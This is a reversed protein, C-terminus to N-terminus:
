GFYSSIPASPDDAIHIWSHVHMAGRFYWVFSPGEIRWVDWEGDGGMDLQAYFAISCAEIGGQKQLCRMVQDRYEERYPEVLGDITKHVADQQERGMDAIPLGPFAGKPGRFRIEAERRDDREIGPRVTTRDLSKRFLADVRKLEKPTPHRLVRDLDAVVEPDTTAFPVQTKVLARSRQKEDLLAYVGNALKSQFWWINQPHGTQEYFGTPQHGQAIGGGFAAPTNHGSGARLTLHFGTVLCQFHEADPAGFFAIAQDEGWKGGYDEAGQKQLKETWGPALVTKMIEPVLARQADTYFDSALLQPTIKWANAMHTRLLVGNPDAFHLPKRGYKIDVRYDWDFCVAKRQEASLSHYLEAMVEHSGNRPRKTASSQARLSSTGAIAGGLVAASASLFQRRSSSQPSIPSDSPM